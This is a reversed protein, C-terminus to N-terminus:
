DRLLAEVIRAGLEDLLEARRRAGLAQEALADGGAIARGEAAVREPGAILTGDPAAVRAEVEIRWVSELPLLREGRQEVLGAMGNVSKIEVELAPVPGGASRVDLGEGALRRRLASTLPAALDAHATRNEVLPVSIATGGGPVRAILPQYGCSSVLLALPLWRALLPPLV